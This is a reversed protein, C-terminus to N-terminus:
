KAVAENPYKARLKKGGAIALSSALFIVVCLVIVVIWAVKYGAANAIIAIITSGFAAGILFIFNILSFIAAYDKQGFCSNVLIAPVMKPMMQGLGYLCAFAFALATSVGAMLLSVLGIASTVCAFAVGGVPGLRDLLVGGVITGAVAALTFISVVNGAAVTTWGLDQTLYNATHASVGAAMVGICFLVLGLFWFSGSKLAVGKTVGQWSNAEAQAALHAKQKDSLEKQKGEEGPKGEYPTQGIEYPSKKILFLVILIGAVMALAGMAIFSTRWAEPGTAIIRSVVQAWIAGGIGGGAYAISMYTARNKNFWMTMLLAIPMQTMGVFGINYICSAVIVVVVNKALAYLMHDQIETVKAFNVRKIGYGPFELDMFMTRLMGMGNGVRKADLVTVEAGKVALVQAVESGVGGGGLVVVKGTPAVEGRLVQYQNYVDKNELGPLSPAAYDSGVAVIVRDPKEAAILEPTVTTNM